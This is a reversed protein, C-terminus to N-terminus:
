GSTGTESQTNNVLQLIEDTLDYTPAAHLLTSERFIMSYGERTGYDDIEKQLKDLLEKKIEDERRRLRKLSLEYYDKVDREAEDIQSELQRKETEGLTDRQEQLRNKLEELQRAKQNIEEQADNWEKEFVATRIKTEQYENFLKSMDVYGIKLTPIGIQSERKPAVTLACVTLLAILAGWKISARYRALFQQQVM